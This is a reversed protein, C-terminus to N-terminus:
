RNKQIVGIKIVKEEFEDRSVAAKNRAKTRYNYITSLSYRFFGAIKVSDTIGLRILAFIRLETNLLEGQKLTIKEEKILLSNFEDVFTPYLSLFINDFKRYLEDLENDVLATSKLMKFLENVDNNTAKKNLLKRYDEMKKIYDSCVDFFHAIYEEKIHNSESLQNNVESLQQNTNTIDENMDILKLSTQYLEKRIRSVRKMQKYVYVITGALFVSLISILLLYMSLEEKRAQEKAQYAANIIPYFSLGESARYRVNCFVADDIAFKMYKYALDINGKKYYTLALSQLSANNTIANTVDTIASIMFYQQQAEFDGREKYIAGLLYAILAREPDSDTTTNLLEKFTAEADKTKKKYFMNETSVIKYKLSQPDLVTLLSDRYVDSRKFLTHKGNSQGYHDYYYGYTEYYDALLVPTLEKRNISELLDRSEVYLGITSYMLAIQINTENLLDKRELNKALSQNKELYYLASDSMYKAYEDYLKKNINYEQITPNKETTLISKLISIRQEKQEIYYEKKSMTNMLQSVLSDNDITSSYSRSASLLLIFMILLPNRM